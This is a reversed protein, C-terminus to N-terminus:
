FRQVIDFLFPRPCFNIKGVDEIAKAAQNQAAASPIIAGTERFIVCGGGIRPGLRGGNRVLFVCSGGASTLTGGKRIVFIRSGGGSNEIRGPRVYKVESFGGDVRAIRTEVFNRIPRSPNAGINVAIGAPNRVVILQRSSIGTPIEVRLVDDSVAKFGADHLGRLSDVFSINSVRSLNEGKLVVIDGPRAVTPNVSLLVPAKKAFPQPAELNKILVPEIHPSITIEHVPILKPPKRMARLEGGFIAGPEYFLISGYFEALMGKHKVFCVPSSRSKAVVGGEGVVAIGGVDRSVIGDEVVNLFPASIYSKSNADVTKMKDSMAVTVADKGLVIISASGTGRYYEPFTVELRDDALVNFEAEKMTTGSVFLVGRTEEFGSGKVELVDGPRAANPSISSVLPAAQASAPLQLLLFGLLVQSLAFRSRIRKM